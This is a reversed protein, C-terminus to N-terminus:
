VVAGYVCVFFPHYTCFLIVMFMVMFGAWFLM